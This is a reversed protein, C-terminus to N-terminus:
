PTDAEGLLDLKPIDWAASREVSRLANAVHRSIPAAHPGIKLDALPRAQPDPLIVGPNLIGAPDFADKVMRFLAVVEAGYLREMLPARLRGDGHEGSPTGGVALVLDAVRDYLEGLRQELDPQATDALANVHLHGDGAHGFAVITIGLDDAIARVGRVYRSLQPVPVCGDEVIQLSRRNEPLAALTPSAAHRVSWIGRHTEPTIALEAFATADAVAAAAKAAARAAADDDDAEFDLLLVAPVDAGPIRARDGAMRLYTVDLLELAAPEYPLLQQVLEGLRDYDHLGVLLGAVAGPRPAVRCSVETLFGLTGESGIILDIPDGSELYRDLAYGSVNKRTRPFRRRILSAAERVSPELASLWDPLPLPAGRELRIREGRGSVFELGQVWARMSGYRVSRAGAADAAVMGGLTCFRGSSPDPPVRLGQSALAADLDSWRVAAGARVTEPTPQVPPADFRQLDVVIGRGVNGGPMGSGAGRAVLPWRRDRAGLVLALLDDADEPVAVADPVIRYPGAGESYCARADPDTRFVGRFDRPATPRHPM